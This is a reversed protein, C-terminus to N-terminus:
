DHQDGPKTLDTDARGIEWVDIENLLACVVAADDPTAPRVTLGPPPTRPATATM